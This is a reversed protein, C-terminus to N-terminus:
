RRLEKTMIQDRRHVKLTITRDARILALAGSEGTVPHGDAETIMDGVQLRAREAASGSDIAVVPPPGDFKWYELGDSSRAKTCTPRCGLAFGFRNTQASPQPGPVTASVPVGDIIYLPQSKSAKSPGLCSPVARAKVDVLAGGRRVTISIEEATLYAFRDAGERTTIPKGGVAVVVDGARLPSTATTSAIVPESQFSWRTPQDQNQEIGCSACQYATV